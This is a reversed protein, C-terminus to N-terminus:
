ILNIPDEASMPPHYVMKKKKKKVDMITQRPYLVGRLVELTHVHSDTHIVTIHGLEKTNSQGQAKAVVHDISVTLTHYLPYLRPRDRIQPPAAEQHV